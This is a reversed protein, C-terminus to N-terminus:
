LPGLREILNTRMSVNCVHYMSAVCAALLMRRRGSPGGHQGQRWHARSFVLLLATRAAEQKGGKKSHVWIPALIPGPGLGLGLGPLHSISQHSAKGFGLRHRSLNDMTSYSVPQPNRICAEPAM